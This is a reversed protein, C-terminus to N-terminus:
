SHARQAFSDFITAISLWPRDDAWECKDALETSDLDLRIDAGNVIRTVKNQKMTPTKMPCSTEKCGLGFSM